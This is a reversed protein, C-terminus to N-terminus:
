RPVPGHKQRQGSTRASGRRRCARVDKVGAMVASLALFRSETSGAILRALTTKGTGPPGWFVMSHTKGDDIARRLPKGDALLHQQGFFGRLSNPRMRDALPRSPDTAAADATKGPTQEDTEFLDAM